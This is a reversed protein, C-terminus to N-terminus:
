GGLGLVPEDGLETALWARGFRLDRKVTSPSVTLAAAIEDVSLGGFYHQELVRAQRSGIAELRRLADDLELFRSADEASLQLVDDLPVPRAGGGRRAATRRRAHDVLLRRMAQAAMALFQERGQFGFPEVDVLRLYAEHVLETTGLTHDPRERQLRGGRHRDRNCRVLGDIDREERHCGDGKLPSALESAFGSAM